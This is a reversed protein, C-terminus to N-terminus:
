SRFIYCVIYFIPGKLTSSIIFYCRHMGLLFPAQTYGTSCTLLMRVIGEIINHNLSFVCICELGSSLSLGAIHHRMSLLAHLVAHQQTMRPLTFDYFSTRSTEQIDCDLLVRAALPGSTVCGQATTRLGLWSTVLVAVCHFAPLRM